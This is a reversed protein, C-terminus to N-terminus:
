FDHVQGAWKAIENMSTALVSTLSSRHDPTRTRSPSCKPAVGSAGAARGRGGFNWFHLVSQSELLGGGLPGQGALFLQSGSGGKM